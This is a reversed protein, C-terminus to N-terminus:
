IKLLTIGVKERLTEKYKMSHTLLKMAYTFDTLRKNRETVISLSPFTRGYVSTLCKNFHRRKDEYNSEKKV